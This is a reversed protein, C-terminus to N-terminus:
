LLPRVPLKAILDVADEYVYEWYETKKIGKNYAKVFKSETNMAICASSLQAM